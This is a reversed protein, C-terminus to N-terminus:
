VVSKRDLAGVWAEPTGIDGIIPTVGFQDLKAAAAGSRALGSLQHGRGVLEQAGSSGILGTGGLVFVRLTARETSARGRCGPDGQERPGSAESSYQPAAAHRLFTEFYFPELFYRRM